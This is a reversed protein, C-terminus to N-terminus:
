GSFPRLVSIDQGGELILCEHGAFLKDLLDVIRARTADSLRDPSKFLIVDGPQLQAVGVAEFVSLPELEDIDERNSM